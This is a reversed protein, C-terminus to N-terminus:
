CAQATTGRTVWQRVARVKSGANGVPSHSTSPADKSTRSPTSSTSRVLSSIHLSANSIQLPTPERHAFEAPVLKLGKPSRDRILAPPEEEEEEEDDDDDM